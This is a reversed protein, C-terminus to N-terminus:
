KITTTDRWEWQHMATMVPITWGQRAPLCPHVMKKDKHDKHNEM